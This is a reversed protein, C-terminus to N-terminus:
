VITGAAAATPSLSKRKAGGLDSDGGSKEEGHSDVAAAAAASSASVVARPTQTLSSSAGGTGARDPSFDAILNKVAVPAASRCDGGPSVPIDATLTAVAASSVRDLTSFM